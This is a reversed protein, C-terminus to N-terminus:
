RPRRAGSRPDEFSTCSTPVFPWTEDHLVSGDPALVAVHLVDGYSGGDDLAIGFVRAADTVVADRLTLALLGGWLLDGDRSLAYTAPGGGDVETPDVFLEVAGSPSRHTAPDVAQRATPYVQAALALPLLIM